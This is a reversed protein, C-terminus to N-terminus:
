LVPVREPIQHAIEEIGRYRRHQKVDMNTAKPVVDSGCWSSHKAADMVFHWPSRMQGSTKARCTRTWVNASPGQAYRAPSRPPHKKGEAACSASCERWKNAIKREPPAQPAAGRDGM